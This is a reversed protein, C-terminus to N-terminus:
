FSFSPDAIIKRHLLRLPHLGGATNSLQEVYVSLGATGLASFLSLQSWVWKQGCMSKLFACWRESFADLFIWYSQVQCEPISDPRSGEEMKRPPRLFATCLVKNELSHLSRFQFSFSLTKGYSPLLQFLINEVKGVVREINFHVVLFINLLFSQLLFFIRTSISCYAALSQLIAM